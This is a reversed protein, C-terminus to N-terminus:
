PCLGNSGINPAKEPIDSEEGNLEAQIMQLTKGKTEIVCFYTFGLNVLAMAAFLVFNAYLGVYVTLAVFIQTVIVASVAQNMTALACAHGKLDTPFMEGAYIQMIPGLGVSFTVAFCLLGALPIWNVGSVDTSTERDLYYWVATPLMSTFMGISSLYLLPKRGVTDVIASCCLSASLLAVGMIITCNDNTLAGIHSPLLVTSFAVICPIGTSRHLCAIGQVIIFARRNAPNTILRLMKVLGRDAKAEKEISTRISALETEISAGGRLWSLAKGADAHLGRKIYYYPSEPCHLFLVLFTVPFIGGIMAMTPLSVFPGVIYVFIMGAFGNVMFFCGAIGRVQPEAIEAVYVPVLTQWGGVCIGALCRAIVLSFSGQAFHVLAWSLIPFLALTLMSTKRGVHDMLAGCPFPALFTGFFLANVILAEESPTLHLPSDPQRLLKLTPAPWGLLMGVTFISISAVFAAALQREVGLNLKFLYM